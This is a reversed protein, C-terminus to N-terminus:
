HRNKLYPRLANKVSDLFANPDFNQKRAYQSISLRPYHTDTISLQSKLYSPPLNFLYNLYDFTMWSEISNVDSVTTLPRRSKANLLWSHYPRTLRLQELSQYDRIFMAFLIILIFVLVALAIKIYRNDIFRKM